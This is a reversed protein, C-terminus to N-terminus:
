SSVSGEMKTCSKCGQGGPEEWSPALLISWENTVSVWFFLAAISCQCGTTNPWCLIREFGQLLVGKALHCCVAVQKGFGPGQCM